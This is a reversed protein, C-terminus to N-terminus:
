DDTDVCQCRIDVERRSIGGPVLVDRSDDADPGAACPAESLPECVDTGPTECVRSHGIFSDDKIGSSGQIGLGGDLYGLTGDSPRCLAVDRCGAAACAAGVIEEAREVFALDM